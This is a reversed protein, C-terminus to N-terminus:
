LRGRDEIAAEETPTLVTRIRTSFEKVRIEGGYREYSDWMRKASELIDRIRIGNRNYVICGLRRETALPYPVSLDVALAQVPPTTAFTDPANDIRMLPGVTSRLSTITIARDVLHPLYRIICRYVPVPMIIHELYTRFPQTFHVGGAIDYDAVPDICGAQLHDIFLSPDSKALPPPIRIAHLRASRRVITNCAQSVRMARTMEVSSSYSMCMELLEYTDFVAQAAM